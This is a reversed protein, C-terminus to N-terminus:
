HYGTRSRKRRIRQEVATCPFAIAPAPPIGVPFFVFPVYSFQSLSFFFFTSSREIRGGVRVSQVARPVNETNKRHAACRAAARRRRRGVSASRSPGRATALTDRARAGSGVGDCNFGYLAGACACQRPCPTRLSADTEYQKTRASYVAQDGGATYLARTSNYRSPRRGSM